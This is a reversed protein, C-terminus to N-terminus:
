HIEIFKTYLFLFIEFLVFFYKYKQTCFKYLMKADVSAIFSVISIIYIIYVFM